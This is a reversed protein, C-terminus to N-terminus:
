LLAFHKLFIGFPATTIPDLNNDALVRLMKDNNAIKDEDVCVVLPLYLHFKRLMAIYQM